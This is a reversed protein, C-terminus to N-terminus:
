YYFYWFSTVPTVKTDKNSVKYMNWVNKRSSRNNVKFLYINAPFLHIPGFVRWLIGDDAVIQGKSIGKNGTGIYLFSFSEWTAKDFRLKILMRSPTTFRGSLLAFGSKGVTFYKILTIPLWDIWIKWIWTVCVSYILFDLCNIGNLFTLGSISFM